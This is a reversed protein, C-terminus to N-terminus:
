RRGIGLDSFGSGAGTHEARVPRAPGRLIGNLISAKEHDDRRIKAFLEILLPSRCCRAKSARKANASMRRETEIANPWQRFVM